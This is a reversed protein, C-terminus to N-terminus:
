PAVQNEKQACSLEKVESQLLNKDFTVNKTTTYSKTEFFGRVWEYPKQQKLLNLVEGDSLYRYNIDSGSIIQPEQNRSLIEIFYEEVQEAIAQEAEYATKHSCDIGNIYTGEFFRDSYYYTVAGYACGTTVAFMAAVIGTIKLGKHKKKKPIMAPIELEEDSIPVYTIKKPRASKHAALKPEHTNQQPEKGKPSKKRHSRDPDTEILKVKLEPQEEDDPLEDFDMDYEEDDDPTDWIEDMAKDIKEEIDGPSGKETREESSM